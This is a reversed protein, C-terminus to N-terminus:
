HISAWSIGFATIMAALTALTVVLAYIGRGHAGTVRTVLITTGVVAVLQFLQIVITLLGKRLIM